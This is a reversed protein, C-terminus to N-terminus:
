NIKKLFEEMEEKTFLNSQIIKSIVENKEFGYFFKVKHINDPDDKPAVGIGYYKSSISLANRQEETLLNIDLPTILYNGIIFSSM